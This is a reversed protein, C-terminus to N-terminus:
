FGAPSYESMRKSSLPSPMAFIVMLRGSTRLAKRGCVSNWSDSANSWARSSGSTPTMMRVPSPGCAKQEPPSWRM